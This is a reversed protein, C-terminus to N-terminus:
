PLGDNVATWTAGGDTTKYVGGGNAIGAFLVQNNSPSIHLDLIHHDLGTSAPHWSTGGDTTKFVGGARTGAYLASGDSAIALATIDHDTIGTNIPAWNAGGDVSRYMGAGATGAFVTQPNGPDAVVAAIHPGPTIAINWPRDGVAIPGGVISNTATDIVSVTDDASNAVLVRTGDPTVAIGAPGAGVSIPAGIVSGTATDVVTVTGNNNPVYLRTGDPTVAIGLADGPEIEITSFLQTQTDLVALQPRTGFYVYRGDPSVVPVHLLTGAGAGAPYSLETGDITNTATDLVMVASGALYVRMGDPSIAPAQLSMAGSNFSAEITNTASDIVWVWAGFSTAYIHAGDPSVAVGLPDASIADGSNIDIMDITAVVTNSATDIVSVTNGNRNAVYVRSGDPTVAIGHPLSGVAIVDVVTATATDIVSVTDDNTNTVYAFPAASAAGAIFTCLAILARMYVRCHVLLPMPRDHGHLSRM